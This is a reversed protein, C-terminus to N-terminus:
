AHGGAAGSLVDAGAGAGASRRPIAQLTLLLGLGFLTMASPEPVASGVVGLKPRTGWQHKWGEGDMGRAYTVGRGANGGRLSAVDEGNRWLHVNVQKGEREIRAAGVIGPGRAHAQQFPTALAPIAWLGLCLTLITTAIKM